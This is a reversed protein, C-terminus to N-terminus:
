RDLRGKPRHASHEIDCCFVERRDAPTETLDQGVLARASFAAM